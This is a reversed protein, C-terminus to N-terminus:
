ASVETIELALQEDIAILKGKAITKDQWKLDFPSDVDVGLKIISNEKLAKLEALSMEVQGIDVSLAVKLQEVLENDFSEVLSDGAPLNEVETLKFSSIDAM